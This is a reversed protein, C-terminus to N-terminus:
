YSRRPFGHGQCQFDSGRFMFRGSFPANSGTLLGPLFGLINKPGLPDAGAEMRQFLVAVGLGYGGFFRRYLSEPLEEGWIEGSTLDVWLVKGWFGYSM